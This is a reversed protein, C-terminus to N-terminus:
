APQLRNLTERITNALAKNDGLLLRWNPHKPDDVKLEVYVDFFGNQNMEGTTVERLASFPLIAALMRGGEREAVFLRRHCFDAALGVGSAFFSEDPHFDESLTELARELRREMRRRYIEKLWSGGRVFFFTPAAVAICCIAKVILLIWLITM